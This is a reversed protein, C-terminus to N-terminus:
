IALSVRPSWRFREPGAGDDIHAEFINGGEVLDEIKIVEERQGSAARNSDIRSEIQRGLEADLSKWAAVGDYQGITLAGPKAGGRGNRFQDQDRNQQPVGGGGLRPRLGGEARSRRSSSKRAVSSRM